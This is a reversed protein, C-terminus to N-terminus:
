QNRRTRCKNGTLKFIGAFFKVGVIVVASITLRIRILTYIIDRFVLLNFVRIITMQKHKKEKHVEKTCPTSIKRRILRMRRTKISATSTEIKASTYRKQVGRPFVRRM